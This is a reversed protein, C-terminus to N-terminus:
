TWITGVEELSANAWLMARAPYCEALGALAVSAPLDVVFPLYEQDRRDVCCPSTSLPGAMKQQQMEGQIGLEQEAVPRLRM